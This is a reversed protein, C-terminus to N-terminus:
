VSGNSSEKNLDNNILPAIMVMFESEHEGHFHQQKDFFVEEHLGANKSAAWTSFMKRSATNDATITTLLRNVSKQEPRALIHDIMKQALGTGRAEELIAVQWLFYATDDTPLRYGSVFGVAEGRENKAIVCSDSFHAAQLLNCYTSNEDLPPCQQVLQHMLVGDTSVPASLKINM